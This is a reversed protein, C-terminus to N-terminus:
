KPQSQSRRGRRVPSQDKGALDGPPVALRLRGSNAALTAESRVGRARIKPCVTLIESRVNEPKQSSAWCSENAATAKDTRRGSRETKTLATPPSDPHRWAEVM